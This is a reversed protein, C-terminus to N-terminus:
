SNSRHSSSHWRSQIERRILATASNVIAVLALGMAIGSGAVSLFGDNALYALPGIILAGGVCVLSLRHPAPSRIGMGLGVVGAVIVILATPLSDM